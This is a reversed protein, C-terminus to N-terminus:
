AIKGRIRKSPDFILMKELLDVAGPSM